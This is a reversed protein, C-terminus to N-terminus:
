PAAGPLSTAPDFAGPEWGCGSELLRHPPTPRHVGRPGASSLDAESQSHVGPCRDRHTAKGRYITVLLPWGETNGLRNFPSLHLEHWSLFTGPDPWPLYRTSAPERGEGSGWTCRPTGPPPTSSVALAGREAAGGLAVLPRVPPFPFKHAM